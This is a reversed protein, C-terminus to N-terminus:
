CRCALPTPCLVRAPHFAVERSLAQHDPWHALAVIDDHTVTEGDEHRLLNELLIKLSVPLRQLSLGLAEGLAPLSHYDQDTPLTRRMDFATRNM